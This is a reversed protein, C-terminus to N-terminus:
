EYLETNRWDTLSFPTLFQLLGFTRGKALEQGDGMTAFSHQKVGEPYFVGSRLDLSAGVKEDSEVWVKWGDDLYQVSVHDFGAHIADVLLVRQSDDPQIWLLQDETEGGLARARFYITHGNPLEGGVHPGWAGPIYFLWALIKLAIWFGAVIQVVRWWIRKSSNQKPRVAM